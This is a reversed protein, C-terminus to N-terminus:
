SNLCPGFPGRLPETRRVDREQNRSLAHDWPGWMLNQVPHPVQKAYDRERARARGQVCTSARGRLYFTFFFFLFPGFVKVSGEGLVVCAHCIPTPFSVGHDRRSLSVSIFVARFWRAGTRAASIRGAGLAPSPTSGWSSESVAPAICWPLARKSSAPCNRIFSFTSKGYSGAVARPIQRRIFM